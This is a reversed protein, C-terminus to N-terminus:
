NSRLVECVRAYTDLSIHLGGHMASGRGGVTIPYERINEEGESRDSKPNRCFGQPEFVPTRVFIERERAREQLSRLAERAAGLSFSVRSNISTRAVTTTYYGVGTHHPPNGQLSLIVLYM